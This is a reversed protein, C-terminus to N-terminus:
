NHDDLVVFYYVCDEKGLKKFFHNSNAPIYLADGEQMIYSKDEVQIQMTGKALIGFEDYKHKFSEHVAESEGSITMCTGKLRHQGETLSHYTIWNSHEKKSFILKRNDKKVFLNEKSENFLENITIGFANCIKHLNIITPSSMDRELNSLFAISLDTKDSLEKLTMKSSKRIAKIKEGIMVDQKFELKM